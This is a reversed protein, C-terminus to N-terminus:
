PIRKEIFIRYYQTPTLFTVNQAILFELIKEFESFQAENWKNPHIQYVYLSRNADYRTRFEEFNANPTPFEIEGSRKFVLKVSEPDGFFWIFLDPDIDVVQRTVADYANGPAGFARLTIGLKRKALDQTKRLNAQQEAFSRLYFESTQGSNAASSGGVEHSYGHNWLEFEGRSTLSKLFRCYQQDGKELYHGILGLAAKAKKSRILEIFKLWEPPLVNKRDWIVDDAKFIVLQTHVLITMQHNKIVSDGLIGTVQITVLGPDSPAQFVAGSDEPTVEGLDAHWKVDIDTECFDNPLPLFVKTKILASAQLSNKEALIPEPEIPMKKSCSVIHLCCTLIIFCKKM